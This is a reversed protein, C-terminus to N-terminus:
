SEGLRGFEKDFRAGCEPCPTAEGHPKYPEWGQRLHYISMAEEWTCAEITYFKKQCDPDIEGNGFRAPEEGGVLMHPFEEDELGWATFKLLKNEKM